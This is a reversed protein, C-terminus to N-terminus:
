NHIIVERDSKVHIIRGSSNKLHTGPHSIYNRDVWTGAPLIELFLVYAPYRDRYLIDHYAKKLAHTLPDNKELLYLTRDGCFVILFLKLRPIQLMTTLSLKLKPGLFIGSGIKKPLPSYNM